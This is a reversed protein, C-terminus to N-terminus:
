MEQMEEPIEHPNLMGPVAIQIKRKEDQALKLAGEREELFLDSDDEGTFERIQVLFDRLHEKFAPIDQDLHFLGTVSIKIQNDTLHPFATRLLNAVFDQVFAINSAPGATPTAPNLSVTVKTTEVLAFMYALITAHMTLGATHSTDTVVSFMHQLIDTYYTQYFSQAAEPNSSVNQMLQFLISLGTDAVNRM